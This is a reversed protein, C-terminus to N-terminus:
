GSAGGLQGFDSSDSLVDSTVESREVALLSVSNNAFQM